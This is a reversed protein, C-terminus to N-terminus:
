DLAPVVVLVVAGVALSLVTTAFDSLLAFLEGDFCFFVAVLVTALFAGAGVASVFFDAVLVVAAALFVAM